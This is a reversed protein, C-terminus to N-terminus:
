FVQWHFLWLYCYYTLTRTIIIMM